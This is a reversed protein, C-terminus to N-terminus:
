ISRCYLLYQLYHQLQRLEDLTLQQESLIQVIQQRVQEATPQDVIAHDILPAAPSPDTTLSDRKALIPADETLTPVASSLTSLDIGWAQAQRRREGRRQEAEDRRGLTDAYEAQREKLVLWRKRIFERGQPSLARDTLFRELNPLATRFEGIKELAVCAKIAREDTLEWAPLRITSDVFGSFLPRQDSQLVAEPTLSADFAMGHIIRLRDGVGGGSQICLAIAKEWQKTRIDLNLVEAMQSQQSLALRVDPLFPEWDGAIPRDSEQWVKVTQDFRKARNLWKVKEPVATLHAKAIAYEPQDTRQIQDWLAIAQAFDRNRYLCYAALDRLDDTAFGANTLKQLAEGRRQWQAGKPSQPNKLGAAIAAQYRNVITKWVPDRRGQEWTQDELHCLFTSFENLLGSPFKTNTTRAMFEVAPQWQVQPANPNQGLWQQLDQWCKGEWFCQWADDQPRLDPDTLAKIKMFGQGAQQLKDELRLIWAECYCIEAAMDARNYFDIATRLHEVDSNEVGSTLWTKAKAQFDIPERSQLNNWRTLPCLNAEWIEVQQESQRDSLHLQDLWYLLEHHSSAAQWFMQDGQQTDIISLHQTSRSIAVYLKNFFYELQLNDTTDPLFKLPTRNFQEVYYDGFFCVAIDPEELGKLGTPTYVIPPKQGNVISFIESLIPSRRIFDVEGGEECPLLVIAGQDIRTKFNDTLIDVGIIGKQAPCGQETRWPEQPELTKNKFLIRRWLHIVNTFKVIQAPSRYNQKLEKLSLRESNGLGKQDDPDLPLLITEYFNACFSEWSFGTPNLTQLPDGAFAFPLSEVRHPLAYRSWVSLRLILQFEIRTFDQAEDCFTAAFGSPIISGNVIGVLVARALDQDDWLNEQSCLQRYWNWVSNYIRQFDEDTIKKQKRPVEHRYEEISLYDQDAEAFHYGKIYTRIAHWCVEASYGSNRFAQLYRQKFQHFSVYNKSGFRDSEGDPLCRLLFGQFTQFCDDLLAHDDQFLSVQGGYQAHSRLIRCVTDRAKETLRDSYTLFLPRTQRIEEPTLSPERTKALHRDCYYAFAYHLMTSKGSGARGNIFAPFTMGHLLEEEEGSMALNVREDSEMAQWTDFDYVIYDPYSRRSHRAIDNASKVVKEDLLNHSVTSGFLRLQNGIQAVKADKPAQRWAAMLFVITRESEDHPHVQSFLVCCGTEQDICRHVNNFQTTHITCDSEGADVLYAIMRHFVARNEVTFPQQSLFADVWFHSEYIVRNERQILEPRKLWDLFYPPMQPQSHTPIQRQEELWGPIVEWRIHERAWLRTNNLFQPDYAGDGRKLIDALYLVQDNGFTRLEAILRLNGFRKVWCPFRSSFLLSFLSPDQELRRKLRQIQPFIHYRQAAEETEPSIYVYLM